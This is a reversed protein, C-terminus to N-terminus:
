IASTTAFRPGSPEDARALDRARRAQGAVATRRRRGPWPAVPAGLGRPSFRSIPPRSPSWLARRRRPHGPLHSHDPTRRAASIRGSLCLGCAPVVSPGSSWPPRRRAFGAPSSGMRRALCAHGDKAHTAWALHPPPPPIQM